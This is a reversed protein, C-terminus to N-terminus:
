GEGNPLRCAPKGGSRRKGILGGNLSACSMGADAFGGGRAKALGFKRIPRRQFCTSNLKNRRVGEAGGVGGFLFAGSVALM